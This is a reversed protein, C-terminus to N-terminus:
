AGPLTIAGLLIAVPPAMYGTFLIVSIVSGLNDLAGSYKPHRLGLSQLWSSAGHGLHISMIMMAALYALFLWINHFGVVYMTFADYRGQGDLQHFSDPQVLGFTFHGLHFAIFIFLAIGTVAMTRAAMTTVKTKYAVYAVPRAARNRAALRLGTVLHLIFIALLGGRALWKLAGLSQMTHAYNNYADPGGFMVLHGLMHQLAFAVLGLGTVAMLHKSGITSRIYSASWSMFEERPGARRLPVAPNPRVTVFDVQVAIGGKFIRTKAGGLSSAV